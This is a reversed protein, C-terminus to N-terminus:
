RRSCSSLARSSRPRTLVAINLSLEVFESTLRIIEHRPAGTLWSQVLTVAQDSREAHWVAALDAEAVTPQGAPHRDGAAAPSTLGLLLAALIIWTTKM